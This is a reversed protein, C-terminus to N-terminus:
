RVILVDKRVAEAVEMMCTVLSFIAETRTFIVKIAMIVTHTQQLQLIKLTLILTKSLISNQSKAKVKTLLLRQLKNMESWYLQFTEPDSIFVQDGYKLTNRFMKFLRM